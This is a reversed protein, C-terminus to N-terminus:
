AVHLGTADPHSRPDPLIHNNKLFRWTVFMILPFISSLLLVPFSFLVLSPTHPLRIEFLDVRRHYFPWYHVGSELRLGLDKVLLGGLDTRPGGLITRM